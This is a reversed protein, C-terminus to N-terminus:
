IFRICIVTINDTGGSEKASKILEEVIDKADKGSKIIYSIERDSVMGSLGDSCMILVDGLCYDYEFIDACTDDDTGLARTIINKQPHFRAEERTISGNEVMEEVVSHDRTIQYLEDNRYAYARSDGVNAIYAGDPEFCSVVITTGMGAKATDQKALNYIQSNAEEIARNIIQPLSKRECEDLIGNLSESVVDVAKQSAVEGASHGGMGDALVCFGSNETPSFGCIKFSDENLERICGVDSAGFVDFGM